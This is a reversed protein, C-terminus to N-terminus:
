GRCCPRTQRATGFLRQLHLRRRPVRQGQLQPRRRDAPVPRAPPGPRQHPHLLQPQRRVRQDARGVARDLPPQPRADGDRAREGGRHGALRHRRHVALGPDGGHGAPRDRRRPRPVGSGASLALHARHQRRTGAQPHRRGQGALPEARGPRHLPLVRAPRARAAEVGARQHLVQRRHPQVPNHPHRAPDPARGCLDIRRAGPHLGHVPLPPGSALHQSQRHHQHQLQVRGRVPGRHDPHGHRDGRRQQRRRGRQTVVTVSKSAASDNRVRTRANVTNLNPTTVFAWDVRVPDTVIMNVDRVIGGWVYYDIAGGEPPIDNRTKSDVKVAIVNDAGGINVYPTIDYTFSTYAGKHQGVFTGNVYVDAVKAVGQFEVAIRRGSYQAPLTFHRRYWSVPVEFDGKPFGKHPHVRFYPLSVPVFGSEDLGVAQGAGGPVDGAFLWHTNFNLVARNSAQPVYPAAAATGPALILVLATTSLATLLAALKRM